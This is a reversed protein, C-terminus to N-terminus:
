GKASRGYLRKMGIRIGSENLFVLYKAEIRRMSRRWRKRKLQVDERLQESAQFPKKTFGMQKLARWVTVISYRLRLKRRLKALTLDPHEAALECLRERQSESLKPQPGPKSFYRSLQGPKM